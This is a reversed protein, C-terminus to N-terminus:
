PHNAKEQRLPPVSCWGSSAEGWLQRVYDITDSNYNTDFLDGWKLGVAELIDYTSCGAFCDVVAM